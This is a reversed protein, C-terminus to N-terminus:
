CKIMVAQVKRDVGTFMLSGPVGAGVAMRIRGIVSYEAADIAMFVILSFHVVLMGADRSIHIVANGTIIAM